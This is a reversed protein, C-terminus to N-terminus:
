IKALLTVGHHYGWPRVVGGPEHFHQEVWTAYMKGDSATFPALTGYQMTTFGPTGRLEVAQDRLEPLASVEASTVRRWGIPVALPVKILEGYMQPASGTPQAQSKRAVLIVTTVTAAGIGLWTLKKM